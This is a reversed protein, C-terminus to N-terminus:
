SKEGAETSKADASVALVPALARMADKFDNAAADVLNEIHDMEGTIFYLGRLPVIAGLESLLPTLNSTPGMSHTLDAGTMLPVAVVGRLGNAPYRDLFAKLLGTYTAKYTPSAVVILNSSAVRENLQAMEESPWLFIQNTHNALDIVELEYTDSRLCRAVFKEAILRTRSQPKPNGVVITVKLM